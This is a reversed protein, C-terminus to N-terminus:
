QKQFLGPKLLMVNGSIDSEYDMANPYIDTNTEIIISGLYHGCIGISCILSNLTPVIAFVSRNTYEFLIKDFAGEPNIDGTNDHFRWNIRIGNLKPNTASIKNQNIICRLQEVWPENKILDGYIRYAGGLCVKCLFKLENEINIDFSTTFVVGETHTNPLYQRTKPSWHKIEHQGLETIVLESGIYSRWRPSTGSGNRGKIGANRVALPVIIDKLLKSEIKSGFESNFTKSAWTTFQNCGGLSIPIIHDWSGENESTFTNTYICYRKNEGM